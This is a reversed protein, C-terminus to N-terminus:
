TNLRKNPIFPKARIIPVCNTPRKVSIIGSFVKKFIPNVIEFMALATKSIASNIFAGSITTAIGIKKKTEDMPIMEVVEKERAISVCPCIAPLADANNPKNGNKSPENVAGNTPTAPSYEAM